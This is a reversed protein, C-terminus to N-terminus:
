LVYVGNEKICPMAINTADSSAVDPETMLYASRIRGELLPKLWREQQSQTGYRL